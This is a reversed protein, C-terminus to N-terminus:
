DIIPRAIRQLLESNPSPADILEFGAVDFKIQIRGQERGSGARAPRWILSPQMAARRRQSHQSTDNNGRRISRDEMDTAAPTVSYM